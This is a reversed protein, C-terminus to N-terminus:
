RTYTKRRSVREPVPWVAHVRQRNGAHGGGDGFVQHLGGTRRPDHDHAAVGPVTRLVEDGDSGLVIIPTLGQALAERLLSKLGDGSRDSWPSTSIIIKEVRM